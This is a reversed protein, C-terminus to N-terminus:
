GNSRRRLLVLGAGVFLLIPLPEPVAQAHLVFSGGPFGFFNAYEGTIYSGDQSVSLPIFLNDGTYGSVGTAYTNMLEIGTAKTYIWGIRDFFFDQAYGVIVSGDYNTGTVSLTTGAFPNSLTTVAQTVSNWMYADGNASYDNSGMAWVGNGSVAGVAGLPNGGDMLVQETGNMWVAGAWYGDNMEQYGGDITGNDNIANVRSSHGALSSGLDSLPGGYTTVAHASGANIWANGAVTLGDGSMTFGSSASSGSSSGLSGFRTWQGTHTDYRSIESLNTSPNYSTGGVYRGNDSITPQGGDGNGPTAGGIGTKGTGSTWTFYQTYDYGAAQGNNNISTVTGDVTYYQASALSALTLAVGVFLFRSFTKM